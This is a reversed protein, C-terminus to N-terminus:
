KRRMRPQPWATAVAAAAFGLVLLVFGVIGIIQSVGYHFTNRMVEEPSPDQPPIGISLLHYAVSAFLLLVGGSVIAVSVM